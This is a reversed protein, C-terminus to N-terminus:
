KPSEAPPPVAVAPMPPPAAEKLGMAHLEALFEHVGTVGDAGARRLLEVARADDRATGKGTLKLMALLYSAPGRLGRDPDKSLQEFAFVSIGYREDIKKAGPYTMALGIMGIMLQAKREGAKYAKSYWKLATGVKSDTVGLNMQHHLGMRFMGEANGQMAALAYYHTAKFEAGASTGNVDKEWNRAADWTRGAMVQDQVSGNDAARCLDTFAASLSSPPGTYYETVSDLLFRPIDLDDHFVWAQRQAWQAGLQSLGAALEERRKALRAPESSKKSAKGSAATKDPQPKKAPEPAAAALSIQLTLLLAPLAAHLGNM